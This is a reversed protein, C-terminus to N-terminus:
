PLLGAPTPLQPTSRPNITTTSQDIGNYIQMFKQVKGDVGKSHNYARYTRGPDFDYREGKDQLVGLAGEINHERDRNPPNGSSPSLGMPNVPNLVGLTSEKATIATLLQTPNPGLAESAGAQQVAAVTSAITSLQGSTFGPGSVNAATATASASVVAGTDSNSITTLKTTVKVTTDGQSDSFTVNQTIQTVTVTCSAENQGGCSALGTPDTLTMPNNRVYAYMNWMQPDDLHVAKFGAPDPSLWRGSPSYHRNATNYQDTEPDYDPLQAFVPHMGASATGGFGTWFEGFPYYLREQVVNGACDTATTASGIEDPHDFIM